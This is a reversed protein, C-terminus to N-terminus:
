PGALRRQDLEDLPQVVDGAALDQDVPLVDPLDRDDLLLRHQEMARERLVNRVGPRARGARFDLPGCSLGAGVIEDRCQRLAIFREHTLAADLQRPAFALTHRNGAGEERIRGDQDQVFRCRTEVALAFHQDLLGHLPQHDAASRQDDRVPKRRHTRQVPQQHEVLAPDRLFAAM